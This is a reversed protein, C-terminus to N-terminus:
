AAAKVRFVQVAHTLSQARERLLQASATSQEVMAANQQTASDLQAVAANIQSVGTAQQASAVSIGEILGGMDRVAAVVEAMTTGAMEVMKRGGAVQDRSVDILQKIEQAAAASRQALSRVEAAVVAFGRGQEGARAAEVAANLALINTQFAIGDIVGNISAIKGSSAAIDQMSAVVKGVADSGREAVTGAGSAKRAAEGANSANQGVTSAIEEIAAATEQLNSSQAETRSSLDTSASAIENAAGNIQQAETRVDGVLGQLNVNLQNLARLLGGVEDTRRVALDQSLDGAAMRNAVLAAGRLPQTIAWHLWKALVAVLALQGAIGLVIALMGLEHTAIGIVSSVTTLALLAATVRVTIGMRAMRAFVANLGKREIGGSRLRIRPKPLQADARMQAYLAEAAQVQAARPKTRVSMYGSVQGSANDVIPTVNAVVWYYDGNKRRNKVLQSWPKGSRITEWMDRYAEAPMDPHRVLNHPQGILEERTYGSTAIFAANCYTIRSDLDTTSVLNTGDPFQYETQTVPLNVRM